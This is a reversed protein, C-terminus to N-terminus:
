RRCSFNYYLLFHTDFRQVKDSKVKLFPPIKQHNRAFKGFSFLGTLRCTKEYVSVTPNSGVHGQPCSSKSDLENRGSRYMELASHYNLM